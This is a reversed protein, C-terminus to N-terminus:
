NGHKRHKWKRVCRLGVVITCEGFFVVGATIWGSVVFLWFPVMHEFKILNESLVVRKTFRGVLKTNTREALNVFGFSRIWELNIAFYDRLAIAHGAFSYGMRTAKLPEHLIFYSRRGTLKDPKLLANITFSARDATDLYAYDGVFKYVYSVIIVRQMLAEALKPALSMIVEQHDKIMQITIGTALFEHLTAPDRQYRHALLFATVQAFYSEILIFKVVLVCAQMFSSVVANHYVNSLFAGPRTNTHAITNSIHSVIAVCLISIWLEDSFPRLLIDFYTLKTKRPVILSIDMSEVLVITPFTHTDLKGRTITVDVKQDILNSVVMRPGHTVEYSGNRADIVTGDIRLYEFLRSFIFHDKGVTTNSARYTYPYAAYWQVNIKPREISAIRRYTYVLVFDMPGDYFATQGALHVAYKVTSSGYEATVAWYSIGVKKFVLDLMQVTYRREFFKQEVLILVHAKWPKIGINSFKSEIVDTVHLENKADVFLVILSPEDIVGLSTESDLIVKPIASIRLLPELVERRELGVLYLVSMSIGKLSGYLDARRAIQIPKHNSETAFGVDRGHHHHQHFYPCRSRESGPVM